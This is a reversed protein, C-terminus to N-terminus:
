YGTSLASETESTQSRGRKGCNRGEVSGNDRKRIQRQPEPQPNCALAAIKFNHHHQEKGREAGRIIGDRITESFTELLSSIFACPSELGEGRGYCWLPKLMRCARARVLNALEASARKIFSTDGKSTRRSAKASPARTARIERRIWYIRPMTYNPLRSLFLPLSAASKNDIHRQM